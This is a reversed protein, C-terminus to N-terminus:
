LSGGLPALPCVCPSPDPRTSDLRTSDRRTSNRQTSFGAPTQMTGMCRRRLRLNDCGGTDVRVYGPIIIVKDAHYTHKLLQNLDRMVRQFPDSMLNLSRDTHIVSYEKFAGHDSKPIVEYMLRDPTSTPSATTTTTTTTTNTAATANSFLRSGPPSSSSATVAAVTTASRSAGRQVVVAGARSVTRSLGQTFM